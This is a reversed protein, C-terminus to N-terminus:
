QNNSDEPKNPDVFKYDVEQAGNTKEDNEPVIVSIVFYVIVAPFIATALSALIVLVRIVTSDIGFYEGIGGCLGTLKKDEKSRYLKKEM